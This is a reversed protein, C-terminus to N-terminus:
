CRYWRGLTQRRVADAADDGDASMERLYRIMRLHAAGQNEAQSAIYTFHSLLQRCSFLGLASVPGEADVTALGRPLNLLDKERTCDHLTAAVRGRHWGLVLIKGHRGYHAPPGKMDSDAAEDMLFRVNQGELIHRKPEATKGGAGYLRPLVAELDKAADDSVAEVVFLPHLGAEKEPKGVLHVAVGASKIKALVDRDLHLKLRMELERLTKSPPPIKDDQGGAYADALKLLRNLAAPGDPLPMAFLGFADGPM